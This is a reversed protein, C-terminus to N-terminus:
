LREKLYPTFIFAPGLTMLISYVLMHHMQTVRKSFSICYAPFITKFHGIRQMEMFFKGAKLINEFADIKSWL